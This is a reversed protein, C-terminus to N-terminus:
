GHKKHLRSEGESEDSEVIEEVEETIISFGLAQAPQPAEGDEEEGGVALMEAMRLWLGAVTIMSDRDEAAVAKEMVMDLARAAQVIAVPGSLITEESEYDLSLYKTKKM